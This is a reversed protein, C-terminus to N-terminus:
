ILQYYKEKVNSAIAWGPKGFKEEELNEISGLYILANDCSFTVGNVQKYDEKNFERGEEITRLVCGDCYHVRNPDTQCTLNECYIIAAKAESLNLGYDDLAIGLSEEYYLKTVIDYVTLRRGNLAPM